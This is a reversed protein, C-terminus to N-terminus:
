HGAFGELSVGGDILIEAGTVYDSADSALYLALPAIQEPRAMKRGLPVGKDWAAQVQPNKLVGNGINTLVSGPAIANVRIGFPALERAVQRVLHAAGAKAAMYPAGVIPVTITSANSTTVVISGKRGAAKMVRAAHRMTYFVSDLNAAITRDWHELPSVDIQGEAFREGAGDLYGRGAPGGANACAIDLGGWAAAHEDFARRVAAEETVDLTCGRVPWGQARLREVEADVTDAHIAAITVSAGNQLLAEAIALGIGSSGGTVLASRGAVSFKELIPNM